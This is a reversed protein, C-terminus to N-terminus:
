PVHRRSSLNCGTHTLNDRKVAVTEVNIVVMFIIRVTSVTLFLKITSQVGAFDHSLCIEGASVLFQTYICLFKTDLM